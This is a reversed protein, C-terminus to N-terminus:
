SGDIGSLGFTVGAPLIVPLESVLRCRVAFTLAVAMVWNPQVPLRSSASFVTRRHVWPDVHVLQLCSLTDDGPWKLNPRADLSLQLQLTISLIGEWLATASASASAPSAHNVLSEPSLAVFLIVSSLGYLRIYDNVTPLLYKCDSSFSTCAKRMWDDLAEGAQAEEFASPCIPGTSLPM